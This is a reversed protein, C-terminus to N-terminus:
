AARGILPYVAMGALWAADEASIVDAVSKDFLLNGEPPFEDDGKWLILALPIFPFADFVVSVDGHHFPSAGYTSVSLDLLLEPKGGFTRVLPDKARRIFADMYFRGDPIEQYSIWQGTLADGKAGQLYHLILVQEQLTLTEGSRRNHFILDPWSAACARGLFVLELGVSGSSNEFLRAGGAEAVANMDRKRLDGRSLGAAKSYDDVRAM